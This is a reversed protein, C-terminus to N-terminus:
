NELHNSFSIKCLFSDFQINIDELDESNATVILQKQEQKENASNESTIGHENEKIIMNSDSTTVQKKSQVKKNKM